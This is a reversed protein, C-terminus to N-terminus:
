PTTEGHSELIQKARAWALKRNAKMRRHAAGSRLPVGYLASGYSALHEFRHTVRTGGAVEEFTTTDLNPRRGSSVTSVLRRNPEFELIRETGDFSTDQGIEPITSVRLNVHGRFETGPGIPGPTVKEVTQDYMFYYKPANRLDSVFEFVSAPDRAIVITSTLTYLRLATPWWVVVWAATAILVMLAWAPTALALPVSASAIALTAAYM